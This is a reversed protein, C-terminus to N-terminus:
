LILWVHMICNNEQGVGPWLFTQRESDVSWKWNQDNAVAENHEDTAPNIHDPIITANYQVPQGDDYPLQRSLIGYGNDQQLQSGQSLPVGGEDEDEEEADPITEM